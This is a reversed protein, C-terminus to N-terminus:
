PSDAVPELLHDISPRDNHGWAARGDIFRRAEKTFIEGRRELFGDWDEEKFRRAAEEDIGHSRLVVDSAPSGTVKEGILRKVDVGPPHILHNTPHRTQAPEASGTLSRVAQSGHTEILGAVDIRSGDDLRRPRLHAMTLLVIRSEDSDADFSRPLEFAHGRGGELLRLLAQASEEEDETIAEIGQRRLDEDSTKGAGAIARWFWRVLLTRTRPGPEEHVAFFRTLVDLLSPKPLLRLHPVSLESRLFSLSRRLAPGAEKAAARLAGLDLQRDKEPSSKGLFAYLSSILREEDLRGMSLRALDEAVGELSSPQEGESRLLAAQIEAWTLAHGASNLRQFMQAPVEQNETEVLLFPVPYERIRKGAESVRSCLAADGDEGWAVLRDALGSADLLWPLPVWRSPVVGDSPPSEFTLNDPDFYLVYPDRPEQSASLPLDRALCVTLSTLRQQGDIVWWAEKLEGADVTLPGVTIREAEAPRKHFLLSGVPYGRYISDFLQAVDHRTWKLGRQFRPLRVQGRLVRAVLDEVRETVMQPQQPLLDGPTMIDKIISGAPM